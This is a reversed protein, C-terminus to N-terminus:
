HTKEVDNELERLKGRNLYPELVKLARAPTDSNITYPKKGITAGWPVHSAGQSESYIAIIQRAIKLDIALSPYDDTHDL